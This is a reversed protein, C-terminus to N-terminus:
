HYIYIGLNKNLEIALFLYVWPKTVILLVFGLAM